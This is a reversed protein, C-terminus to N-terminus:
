RAQKLPIHKISELIKQGEDGLAFDVYAKVAGSPKGKTVINYDEYFAYKVPFSRADPLNGDVTLVKVNPSEHGYLQMGIAAEDQEVLANTGAVPNGPKEPTLRNIDHGYHEAQYSMTEVVCPQLYVNKIAMDKGGVERWNRIKGALIAKLDAQSLDNVANAKNVVMVIPAKGAVTNSLSKDLGSKDFNFTALGIDAKGDLVESVGSRCKGQLLVVEVGTKKTFADALAKAQPITCPDGAITIKRAQADAHPLSPALTLGALVIAMTLQKQMVNKWQEKM